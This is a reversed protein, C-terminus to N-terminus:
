TQADFGGGPRAGHDGGREVEEEEVDDVVVVM